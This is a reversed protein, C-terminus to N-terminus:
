FRLRGTRDTDSEAFWIKPGTGSVIATVGANSTLGNSYETVRGSTTIRGIKAERYGYSGNPVNETFWVAGDTGSTLDFPEEGPTIGRSYETVNGATTIRGIRGGANETFWLAGDPGAAISFPMSGATIGKSYETIAGRRTIRGIADQEPETFWIAGDSGEVLDWALSKLSYTQIKGATTITGIADGTGTLTFWLAKGPGSAISQPSRFGGVPFNTFSGDTTMRVIQQNYEDTIWLAGDPGLAVDQFSAGESTPGSYYYDHEAKGAMGIQVIVNEGYDQDIVDAVWIGGAGAAVATPGYYNSYRPLDSFQRITVASAAGGSLPVNQPPPM